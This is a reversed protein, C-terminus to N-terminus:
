TQYGCDQDLTISIVISLNHQRNQSKGVIDYKLNPPCVSGIWQTSGSSILCWAQLSICLKQRWNNSIAALHKGQM